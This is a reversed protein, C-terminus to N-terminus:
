GGNKEPGVIVTAGCPHNFYERYVSNAQELTLSRLYRSTEWPTMFSRGYYEALTMSMLLRGSREFVRSCNFLSSARAAAFERAELGQTGLRECEERLMDLAAAAGQRTTAAHFMALGRYFGSFFSAGARYALAADERIKKFIGSSLGNLAEHLVDFVQRDRTLNDCGPVAYVVMTQERRLTIDAFNEQRPFDPSGPDPFVNDNDWPIAADLEGALKAAEAHSIQGSIGMCARAPVLLSHYFRRLQRENINEIADIRGARPLGYPHSGYMMALAKDEAVCLPNMSRSELAAVANQKERALAKPAFAPSALIRRLVDAGTKIKDKPCNMKVVVSNAGGSFALNIANDDLLAHLRSESLGKAGTSLMAALLNSIGANDYNEAITGGPIALCVDILPLREDPLTILDAGSPLPQKRPLAKGNRKRGLKAKVEQKPLQRVINLKQDGLYERAVRVIDDRDLRNIVQQAHDAMLPSGYALVADGIIGALGANTQLTRFYDTALRAKERELEQQTVGNRRMLDLEALLAKELAQWKDPTTVAFVALLGDFVPTYSFAGVDVALEKRNRLERVIRSSNSQGLIGCLVDLAPVDRHTAAPIKAAVALRALPDDFMATHERRCQQEPELPLAPEGIIGRKMGGLHQQTLEVARVAEIDGSVVMFAREPSYRRRYYEFMTKRDVELIKEYYGIIPHRIPHKLFVTQWLKEGLRQDPNDRGLDRERLIVEKEGQFKKEPFTPDSFMRSLVKIGVAAHESPLEAYYVTHDYSTYANMDGGHRHIVDAANQGPYGKCGQFLMHELFHSLGCGLFEEEFASGTAVWCQVTVTPADHKENVFIRLGNDLVFNKVQSFYDSSLSSSKMCFHKGM